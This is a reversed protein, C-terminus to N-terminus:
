LRRADLARRCGKRLAEFYPGLCQPVKATPVDYCLLGMEGWCEDEWNLVPEPPGKAVPAAPAAEVPKKEPSQTRHQSPLPERLLANIAAPSTETTAPAPAQRTRPKDEHVEVYGIRPMRHVCLAVSGVFLVAWGALKLPDQGSDSDAM